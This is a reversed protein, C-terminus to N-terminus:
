EKCLEMFQILYKEGNIKMKEWQHKQETYYAHNLANRYGKINSLLTYIKETDQQLVREMIEIQADRAIKKDDLLKWEKKNKNNAKIHLANNFLMRHKNNDQDLGCKLCGYTIMNEELMTFAQQILGHRLCYAIAFNIKDVVSDGTDEADVKKELAVFLEKLPPIM